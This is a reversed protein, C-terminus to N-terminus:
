KTQINSITESLLTSIDTLAENYGKSEGEFEEGWCAGDHLSQFPPCGCGSKKKLRNIEEKISNLLLSITTAHFSKIKKFDPVAYNKSGNLENLIKVNWINDFEEDRSKLIQQTKNM